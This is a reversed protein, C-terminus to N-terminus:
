VPKHEDAAPATFLPPTRRGYGAARLPRQDLQGCHDSANERAGWVCMRFDLGDVRRRAGWAWTSEVAFWIPLLCGRTQPHAAPSM